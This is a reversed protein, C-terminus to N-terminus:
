TDSLLSTNLFHILATIRSPLSYLAASGHDYVCKLSLSLEKMQDKQHRELVLIVTSTVPPGEQFGGGVSISQCCSM